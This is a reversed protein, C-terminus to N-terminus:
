RVVFKGAMGAQRHGSITCFYDYAGEQGEAVAFVVGTTSGKASVLPTKVGLQAIFFDHAMGDGNVVTVRVRTSAQATLDPNVVGDIAGGVGIYVMRGDRMATQLRYDQGAAILDSLLGPQAPPDATVPRASRGVVVVAILFLIFLYLLGLKM